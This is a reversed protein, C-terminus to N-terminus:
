YRVNSFFNFKQGGATWVNTHNKTLELYPKTFIVNTLNQAPNQGFDSVGEEGFTQFNKVFSVERSM